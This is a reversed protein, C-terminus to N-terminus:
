TFLVNLAWIVGVLDSGVFSDLQTQDTRTFQIPLLRHSAPCNAAQNVHVTVRSM